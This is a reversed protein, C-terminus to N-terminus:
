VSSPINIRFLAGKPVDIYELTGGHQVIIHRSLWLGLGMGFKKSGSLLEFLNDQAQPPVGPGDDLVDIRIHPFYLSTNLRITRDKQHSRVLSNISNNILNLLVQRIQATACRMTLQPTLNLEIKINNKQLEPQIITLIDEVLLDLRVVQYDTSEDLFISRLSKIITSARNNDNQLAILIENVIKLDYQNNDLNRQLLQINLNSAGLPQNLEHAISAALAGTAATKNAMSLSYILKAQDKLLQNIRENEVLFQHNTIAVKETWYGGVALYSLTNMVMQFVTVFTLISPIQDIANITLAPATIVIVRSSALLLEFVTAFKLYTIQKSSNGKTYVFLQQIQLLYFSIFFVCMFITRIGFNSNLRLYEFAIFFILVSLISLRVVRKGIEHNLSICFLTQLLSATYLFSNAITFNFEPRSVNEIFLVGFGFIYLGLINVGLSTIWYDNKIKSERSRRYHYVGLFLGFQVTALILFYLAIQIKM